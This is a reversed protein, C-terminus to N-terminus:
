PQRRLSVNGWSGSAKYGHQIYKNILENCHGKDSLPNIEFIIEGAFLRKDESCADMYGELITADHGEADIKLLKIGSIEYRKVLTKFSIVDIQYTEITSAPLNFTKIAKLQAPHPKDLSNCGQLYSYKDFGFLEKIKDPPIYYMVGLRDENSVACNVKKVGGKSPLQDLYIKVPEISLGVDRTGANEILTEFNSTGIEIFDYIM